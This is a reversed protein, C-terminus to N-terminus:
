MRNDNFLFSMACLNPYKIILLYCKSHINNIGIRKQKNWLLTALLFKLM